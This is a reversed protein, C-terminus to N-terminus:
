ESSDDGDQPKLPLSKLLDLATKSLSKPLIESPLLIAALSAVDAVVPSDPQHSVITEDDLVLIGGPFDQVKGTVQVGSEDLFLNADFRAFGTWGDKESLRDGGNLSWISKASRLVGTRIRGGQVVADVDLEDLHGGDFRLSRVLGSAKGELLPGLSEPLVQALELQDLHGFLEGSWGSRELDMELNGRFSGERIRAVSPDATLSLLWLPLPHQHTQLRLTTQRDETAPRVLSLQIPQESHEQSEFEARMVAGPDDLEVLVQSKSFEATTKQDQIELKDASVRISRSLQHPQTVWGDHIRQVLRRVGEASCHVVDAHVDWQESQRKLTLTDVSFILKGTESDLLRFRAFKTTAPRPFSLEDFQVDGQLLASAFARYGAATWHQSRWVIALVIGMFPILGLAILLSRCVLRKSPKRLFVGDTGEGPENEERWKRFLM